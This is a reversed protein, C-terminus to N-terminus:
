ISLEAELGRAPYPFFILKNEDFSIRVSGAQQERSRVKLVQGAAEVEYHTYPGMLRSSRVKAEVGSGFLVHEQRLMAVYEGDPLEAKLNRGLLEAKGHKVSALIFNPEGIFGAVFLNAPNNYVEAPTGVQQVTGARMVIIKDALMMAEEQSHTVHIATLGREKVMRRLEVRLGSAIKADLASLPEDLLMLHSGTALARSVALRQQMGGSLTTPLDGERGELMVLSLMERAIKAATAPDSGRAMLGYRANDLVSMHPFLAYNQFIFGIGRDEPPLDTVDSGNILVGGADPKNIGAITKLLTTKGCGSPGLLVAYEGDAISISVNELAVVPGFNKSIGKTEVSPM